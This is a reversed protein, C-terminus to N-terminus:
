PCSPYISSCLVLCCRIRRNKLEELDKTWRINESGLGSILKDAAVLRREMIEAEEQLQRQETIAQFICFHTFRNTSIRCHSIISFHGCVQEYKLRLVELEDSLATLEKNIKDLERKSQHYNRELRAM